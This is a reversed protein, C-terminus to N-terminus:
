RCVPRYLRLREDFVAEADQEADSIAQERVSYEQARMGLPMGFIMVVTLLVSVYFMSNMKM